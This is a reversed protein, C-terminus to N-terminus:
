GSLLRICQPCICGAGVPLCRGNGTFEYYQHAKDKRVNTGQQGASLAYCGVKRWFRTAKVLEPHHGGSTTGFVVVLDGPGVSADPEHSSSQLAARHARRDLSEREADGLALPVIQLLATLTLLFSHLKLFMLWGSKLARRSGVKAFRQWGAYTAFTFQHLATSRTGIRREATSNATSQPHVTKGWARQGHYAEGLFHANDRCPLTNM